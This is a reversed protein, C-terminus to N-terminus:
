PAGTQHFKPTLKNNPDIPYRILVIRTIFQVAPKNKCMQAVTM